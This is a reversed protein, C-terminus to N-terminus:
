VLGLKIEVEACIIHGILIHCEQIRATVNSKVIYCLSSSDKMKGGDKGLLSITKISLSNSIEIAKLLNKSNGSTSILIISDGKNGIAEIQRSFIDEFSYDNSICTLTSTDTTLAISNLPIRNTTFRGLFEAALHQSDAASGGNGCWFINKRINISECIIDSAKTIFSEVDVLKKVTSIHDLIESNISM